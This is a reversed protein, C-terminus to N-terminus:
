NTSAVPELFTALIYDDFYRKKLNFLTVGSTRNFLLMTNPGLIVINVSDLIELIVDIM